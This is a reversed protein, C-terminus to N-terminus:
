REKPPDAVEVIDVVVERDLTWLGPIRIEQPLRPFLPDPVSIVSWEGRRCDQHVSQVRGKLQARM